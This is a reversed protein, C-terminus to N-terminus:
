RRKRWAYALLGILGIVTLVLASPEPVPATVSTLRVDDFLTQVGTSSMLEVRLSQGLGTPNAGTAFTWTLTDWEGAAPWDTQHTQATLLNAGPTSGYGLNFTIGGSPVGSRIGMDATLSYTTNALLTASLVQYAGGADAGGDSYNAWLAQASGDPPSAIDMGALGAVGAYEGIQTWSTPMTDHTGSAVTPSEFSPNLIAITDAKVSGVFAASLILVLSLVFCVRKM